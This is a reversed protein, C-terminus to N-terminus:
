AAENFTMDKNLQNVVDLDLATIGGGVAGVAAGAIAGYPGFKAGAAAGTAGGTVPAGIAQAIVNMKGVENQVDINKIQRDFMEQYTKNQLQYNAWENSLQPLSM